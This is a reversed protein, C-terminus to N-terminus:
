IYSIYIDYIYAHTYLCTYQIYKGIRQVQPEIGIKDFVGRIFTASASFGRLSIGGDPPVYFENCGLSLYIEKESATEAYGIIEKGKCINPYIYIDISLM